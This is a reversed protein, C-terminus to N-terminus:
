YNSYYNRLQQQYQQNQISYLQLQQHFQTQQLSRQRSEIQQQQQQQYLQQQFAFSNSPTYTPQQVGGQVQASPKPTLQNVTNTVLPLLAGSVERVRRAAEPNEQYEHTNIDGIATDKNVWVQLDKKFSDNVGDNYFRFAGVKEEGSDSVYKLDYSHYHWSSIWNGTHVKESKVDLLQSATIGAGNDIILRDGVFKIKCKKSKKGCKADFVKGSMVPPQRYQEIEASGLDAYVASPIACMLAAILVSRKM